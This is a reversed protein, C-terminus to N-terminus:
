EKIRSSRLLEVLGVGFAYDQRYYALICQRSYIGFNHWGRFLPRVGAGDIRWLYRKGDFGESESTIALPIGTREDVEGWGDKQMFKSLVVISKPDAEIIVRKGEVRVYQPDVFLGIGKRGVAEEPMSSAPFIWLRGSGDEHADAVDKGKRFKGYPKPYVLVERAWAPYYSKLQKWDDSKVLVEDHLINSPLGGKERVANFAGIYDLRLGTPVITRRTQTGSDAQRRIETM